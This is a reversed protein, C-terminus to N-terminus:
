HGFCGLQQKPGGLAALNSVDYTAGGNCWQYAGKTNDFASVANQNWWALSFSSIPDFVNRGFTWHGGIYDGPQSSPVAFMGQEFTSANLNPGAAQLADFVQMLAYYPVYFYPPSTPPEEAPKHGPSAREFTQYPETSTVAPWQFGGSISHSWEKQDYDRGVPDGFYSVDWEPFYNQQDAANTLFIPVIPDCACLITTVGAAKMQAMASVAEQEYESVNITYGVVKAPTVGCQSLEQQFVDVEAQYQPTQPFIIGFKRNSHQYLTDGAYIAPMGAMRRCVVAASEQLGVTGPPGQVSYEYPAHQQFWQQSLGVSSFGIVKEAALDEEYPQSAELSFTVDGFAGMDHATVADAQTAGLGQGQDEELYDGQGQYTKLVVHRGYLEFQSNFYGIYTNLDAVYADQNINASGALANVASQQQSNALRYTLTITTGTVGQGTAGGNNGQFAAVCNPAYRSWAFQRVGPGCKVGSKAVGSSSGAAFNGNAIGQSTGIGAPPPPPAVAGGTAGQTSGAAPGAVGATAGGATVNGAATQGNASTQGGGSSGAQSSGAASIGGNGGGPQTSPVFAIILAVALAVGLIPVYRAAMRTLWRRLMADFEAQNMPGQDRMDSM